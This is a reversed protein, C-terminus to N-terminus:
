NPDTSQTIAPPTGSFKPAEMDKVTVNFSGTVPNGKTNTTSVMVTTTGKPFVHPLQPNFMLTNTIPQGCSDTAMANAQDYSTINATCQTPDTPAQIDQATITGGANQCSFDVSPIAPIGNQGTEFINVTFDPCGPEDPFCKQGIVPFTISANSDFDLGA